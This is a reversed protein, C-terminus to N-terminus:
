FLINKSVSLEKYPEICEKVDRDSQSYASM